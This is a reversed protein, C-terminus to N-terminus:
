MKGEGIWFDYLTIWRWQWVHSAGAVLAGGRGVKGGEVDMAGEMEAEGMSIEGILSV